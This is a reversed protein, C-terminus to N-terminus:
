VLASKMQEALKLAPLSLTRNRLQGLMVRLPSTEREALTKVRLRPETQPVGAAIQFTLASEKLIYSFLFELSSSEVGTRPTLGQAALAENLNARIALFNLPLAFVYDCCERLHLPSDRGALPHSTNMVACLHQHSTLLEQVESSPPPNLLLALDAEYDILSAIGHIHDRVLVNVTVDPYKKRFAAVQEPVFNGAFAQSCVLNIHGRKLNSLDAIQSRFLDYDALQFNIHRLLLEGAPNLRVGQSIREFIAIGIEDEFDLVKRTLASPTINLQEAAKRISGVESIVKITKLIQIHKM